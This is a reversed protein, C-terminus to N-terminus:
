QQAVAAPQPKRQNRILVEGLPTGECRKCIKEDRNSVIVVVSQGNTPGSCVFCEENKM